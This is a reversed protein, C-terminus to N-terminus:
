DSPLLGRDLAYRTIAPGDPLGLKQLIQRRCLEVTRPSVGLRGAAQRSSAGEAIMQLVARENRSLTRWAPWLARPLDEVIATAFPTLHRSGAAVARLAKRFIPLPDSKHVFGDPRAALAESLLERSHCGTFILTKTALGNERLFRLCEVGNQEALTLDFIILDPTDESLIRLAEIGSSTQHAVTFGGEQALVCAVMERIPVHADFLAARLHM